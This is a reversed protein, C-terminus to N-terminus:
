AGSVDMMTTAMGPDDPGGPFGPPNVLFPPPDQPNVPALPQTVVSDRLDQVPQGQASEQDVTVSLRNLSDKLRRMAATDPAQVDQPAQPPAAPVSQADATQPLLVRELARQVGRWKGCHPPF